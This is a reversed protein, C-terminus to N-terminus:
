NKLIFDQHTTFKLYGIGDKQTWAEIPRARVSEILDSRLRVFGDKYEGAIVATVIDKSLGDICFEMTDQFGNYGLRYGLVKLDYSVEGNRIKVTLTGKKIVGTM